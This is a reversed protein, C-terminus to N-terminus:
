SREPVTRGRLNRASNRQGRRSPKGRSSASGVKRSRAGALTSATALLIGAVAEHCSGAVECLDLRHVCGSSCRIAGLTGAVLQATQDDAVLAVGSGALLLTFGLVAAVQGLLFSRRSQTLAVQHYYDLRKQTATWVSLLDLSEGDAAITVQEEAATLEQAAQKLVIRDTVDRRLARGYFSLSFALVYLTLGGGLLGRLAPDADGALVLGLGVGTPLLILLSAWTTRMLRRREPSRRWVQRREALVEEPLDSESEDVTMGM